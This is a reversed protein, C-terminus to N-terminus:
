QVEKAAPKALPNDNDTERLERILANGQRNQFAILYTKTEGQGVKQNAVWTEVTGTFAVTNESHFVRMRTPFFVRSVNDAKIKAIAAKFQSNLVGSTGPDVAKLIAEFQWDASLPSVTAYKQIYFEGIQELYDADLIPGGITVPKRLEAPVVITRVTKDM